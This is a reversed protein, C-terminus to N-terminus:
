VKPALVMRSVPVWKILKPKLDTLENQMIVVQQETFLLKELGVEYRRKAAMVSAEHRGEKSSLLRRSYLELVSSTSLSESLGRSTQCGATNHLREPAGLLLHPDRLQHPRGGGQSLGAAFDNTM